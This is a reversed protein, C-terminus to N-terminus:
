GFFVRWALLAGIDVTVFLLAPRCRRLTEAPGARLAGSHKLESAVFERWLVRLVTWLRKM